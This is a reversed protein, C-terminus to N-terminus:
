ILLHIVVIVLLRPVDVMFACPKTKPLFLEITGLFSVSVVFRPVSTTLTFSM